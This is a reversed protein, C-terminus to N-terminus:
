FDAHFGKSVNARWLVHLCTSCPQRWNTDQSTGNIRTVFAVRARHKLHWPPSGSIIPLFALIVGFWCPGQHGPGCVHYLPQYLASRHRLASILRVLVLRLESQPRFGSRMFSSDSTIALWSRPSSYTGSDQVWRGDLWALQPYGFNRALPGLSSETLPALDYCPVPLPLQEHIM